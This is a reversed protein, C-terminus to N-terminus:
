EVTYLSADYSGLAMAVMTRFVWKHKLRRFFDDKLNVKFDKPPLCSEATMTFVVLPKGNYHYAQTAINVLASYAKAGTLKREM